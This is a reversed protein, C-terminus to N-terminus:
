YGLEDMMKVESELEHLKTLHAKKDTTTCSFKKGLLTCSSLIVNRPTDARQWGGKGYKIYPLRLLDYQDEEEEQEVSPMASNSSDIKSCFDKMMAETQILLDRSKNFSSDSGVLEFMIVKDKKLETARVIKYIEGQDRGDLDWSSEWKLSKGTVDTNCANIQAFANTALLIYFINVIPLLEKQLM